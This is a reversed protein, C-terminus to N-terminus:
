PRLWRKNNVIRNITMNSLSLQSAISRQPRNRAESRIYDVLEWTVKAAYHNEARPPNKAGGRARGKRSMDKGNDSHTGLFLHSPNVCSPTDCKHCVLMGDPITGHALEWSFRHAYRHTKADVGFRGYRDDRSAGTWLWCGSMPEPSVHSM